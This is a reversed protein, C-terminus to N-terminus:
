GLAYQATAKGRGNPASVFGTRVILGMSEAEYVYHRVLPRPWGTELALDRVTARDLRDLADILIELRLDGSLRNSGPEPPLTTM